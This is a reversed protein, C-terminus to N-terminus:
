IVIKVHLKKVTSNKKKKFIAHDRNIDKLHAKLDLNQIVIKAHFNEMKMQFYKMMKIPVKARNRKM